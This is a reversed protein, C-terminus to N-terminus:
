PRSMMCHMLRAICLVFEVSGVCAKIQLKWYLGQNMDCYQHKILPLSTNIELTPMISPNAVHRAWLRTTSPSCISSPLSTNIELTPMISTYAVHRAWSWTTSPLRISSPLATNIELTPMISSYAVHRAWSWTTSPLRISSPLSTNIEIHAHDLLICHSTNM